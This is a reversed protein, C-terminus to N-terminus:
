VVLNVRVAEPNSAAYEIHRACKTHYYHYELIPCTADEYPANLHYNIREAIREIRKDLSIRMRDCEDPNFRIVIHQPVRGENYANEAFLRVVCAHIDMVFGLDCEPSYNSDSHGGREDIELQVVRDAGVWLFDPRRRKTVDCTQGFMVDDLASPPHTVLPLLM